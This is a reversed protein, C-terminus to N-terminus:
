KGFYWNETGGRRRTADTSYRPYKRQFYIIELFRTTDLSLLPLLAAVGVINHIGTSLYKPESFCRHFSSFFLLLSIGEHQHAWVCTTENTYNRQFELSIEVKSCTGVVSYLSFSSARVLCAVFVFGRRNALHSPRFKRGRRKVKSWCYRVRTEYFDINGNNIVVFVSTIKKRRKEDNVSCAVIIVYHDLILTSLHFIWPDRTSHSPFNNSDFHSDTIFSRKVRSM